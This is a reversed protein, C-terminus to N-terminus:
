WEPLCDPNSGDDCSVEGTAPGSYLFPYGWADNPVERIINATSLDTLAPPNVGFDKAYIGIASRLTELNARTAATKAHGLQATFKPVVISVLLGVVVLVMVMEMLTFGTTNTKTKM